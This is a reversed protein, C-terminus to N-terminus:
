MEPQMMAVHNGEPDLGVSIWGIGPIMMKDAVLSGGLDVLKQTYVDIDEVSVYNLPKQMENGKQYMGGNLGPEQLMGEEDTPVTQIVWYDMGPIPTYIFKWSFLGEYFVKLEEIDEAPIEFHVITKNL